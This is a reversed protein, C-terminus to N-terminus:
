VPPILYGCERIPSLLENLADADCRLPGYRIADILDVLSSIPVSGAIKKSEEQTLLRSGDDHTFTGLLTELEAVRRKDRPASAVFKALSRAYKGYIKYDTAVTGFKLGHNKAVDKIADIRLKNKLIRLYAVECARELKREPVPPRGIKRRLNLKGDNALADRILILSQKAFEDPKSELFACLEALCLEPSGKFKKAM